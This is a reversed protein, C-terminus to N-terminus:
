RRPFYKIGQYFIICKFPLLVLVFIFINDTTPTNKKKKKKKKKEIFLAIATM